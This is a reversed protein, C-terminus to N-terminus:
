ILFCLAIKEKEMASFSVFFRTQHYKETFNTRGARWRARERFVAVLQKRLTGGEVRWRARDSFINV